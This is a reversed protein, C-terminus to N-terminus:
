LLFSIGGLDVWGAVVRRTVKRTMIRKNRVNAQARGPADLMSVWAVLM